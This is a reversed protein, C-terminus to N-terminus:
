AQIHASQKWLIYALCSLIIALLLNLVWEGLTGYASTLYLIIIVIEIICGGLFCYLGIRVRRQSGNSCFLGMLIFVLGVVILVDVILSFINYYYINRGLLVIFDIVCLVAVVGMAIIEIIQFVGMNGKTPPKELDPCSSGCCSM